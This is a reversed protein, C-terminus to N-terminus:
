KGGAEDIAARQKHFLEILPQRHTDDTNILIPYRHRRCENETPMRAIAACLEVHAKRWRATDKKAESLDAQADFTDRMWTDVEASRAVLAAELEKERAGTADNIEKIITKAEAPETEAAELAAVRGELEGFLESSEAEVKRQEIEEETGVHLARVQGASILEKFEELAEDVPKTEGFSGDIFEIAM